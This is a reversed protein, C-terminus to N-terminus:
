DHKGQQLDLLQQIEAESLTKGDDAAMEEIEARSTKKGSIKQYMLIIQALQEVYPARPNYLGILQRTM